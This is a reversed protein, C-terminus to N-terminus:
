LDGAHQNRSPPHRNRLRHRGRWTECGRRHFAHAPSAKGKGQHARYGDAEATEEIPVIADCNAPIPAGTMIKVACGPQRRHHSRWRCSHLRHPPTQCATRRCDSERVAYGDMASSDYSPMNEPAFVDETIVRDLADLIEVSESGLTSVNELILTRAEAFTPM